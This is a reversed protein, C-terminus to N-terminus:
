IYLQKYTIDSTVGYHWCSGTDLNVISKKTRLGMSDYNLQNSLMPVDHELVNGKQKM